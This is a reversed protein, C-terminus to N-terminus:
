RYHYIIRWVLWQWLEIASEYWREVATLDKRVQMSSAFILWPSKPHDGSPGSSSVKWRLVRYLGRRGARAMLRKDTTGDDVGDDGEISEGEDSDCEEMPRGDLLLVPEIYRALRWGRSGESFDPLPEELPWGDDDIFPLITLRTLPIACAAGLTLLLLALVAPYALRFSALGDFATTATLGPDFCSAILVIGYGFFLSAVVLRLVTRFKFVVKLWQTEANTVLVQQEFHRLPILGIAIWVTAM